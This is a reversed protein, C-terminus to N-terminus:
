VNQTGTFQLRPHAITCVHKQKNIDRFERIHRSSSVSISCSLHLQIILCDAHTILLSFILGDGEIETYLSPLSPCVGLLSLRPLFPIQGTSISPILLSLLREKHLWVTNLAFSSESVSFFLM